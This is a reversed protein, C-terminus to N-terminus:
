LDLTPGWLLVLDYKRLGPLNPDSDLKLTGAVKVSVPGMLGIKVFTGFTALRKEPTVIDQAFTVELGYIDEPRLARFFGAYARLGSRARHPDTLMTEAFEEDPPRALNEVGGYVGLEFRM